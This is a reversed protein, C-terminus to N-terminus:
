LKNSNYNNDWGDVKGRSYLWSNQELRQIEIKVSIYDIGLEDEIFTEALEKTPLLCTHKLGDVIGYSDFDFFSEKEFQCAIAWFKM